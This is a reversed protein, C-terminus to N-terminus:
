KAVFALANPVTRAWRAGILGGALAIQASTGSDMRLADRVGAAVLARAFDEPTGWELMAVVYYGKADVGFGVQRTARWIEGRVDFGERVGDVSFTGNTVLRPGAALADTVELWAPTSTSLTINAADGVSLSLDPLSAPDYTLTVEGPAPTFADDHVASVVGSAVSVTVYGFEGVRTFGDGVFLTLFKPNPAAQVSNVVLTRGTVELTLRTRAAGWLVGSASFAVGARVGRWYAVTAGGSVVQDVAQLSPPDFYGGNVVAVARARRAYELADWAGGSPAALVRPAYRAPDLTVLHLKTAGAPVVAYTAGTPPQGPAPAPDPRPEASIQLSSGIVTVSPDAARDTLEAELVADAGDQWLRVRSLGDGGVPQTREVAVTDRLRLKLRNPAREELAWEPARLLNLSIANPRRTANWALVQNFGGEPVPFLPELNYAGADLRLRVGLPEVVRLALLLSGGQRVPAPLAVSAGSADTWGTAASYELRSEGLTLRLRAADLPSTQVRIGIRALASVELAPEDALRATQVPPDFAKANLLLGEARAATVSALAIVALIPLLRM